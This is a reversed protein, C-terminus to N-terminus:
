SPCVQKKQLQALIQLSSGMVKFDDSLIAVKQM